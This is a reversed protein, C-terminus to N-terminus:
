HVHVRERAVSIDIGLPVGAAFEAACWCESACGVKDQKNSVCTAYCYEDCNSSPVSTASLRRAPVPSDKIMWMEDSGSTGMDLYEIWHLHTANIASLHAYGYGASRIVSWPGFFVDDFHELLEKNGGAGSVIHVPYKPNLYTHNQQVDVVGKYVPFTREYSHEHATLYIDVNHKYILDEMSYTTGNIDFGRRLKGADGACNPMSDVNSCYMPRHGFVIVWPTVSRNVAALDADIWNYQQILNPYLTSSYYVETSYAVFHIYSIDFSYYWNNGSNAIQSLGSFRQTYHSFNYTSEHNGLCLMYPVYAALPEIERMFADGMMGANNHMDYALDGVHVIMDFQNSNLENTLAQLAQANIVGMDGYVAMRVVPYGKAFTTFNFVDSCLM